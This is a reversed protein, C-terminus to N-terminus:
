KEMCNEHNEILLVQPYYNRMVPAGTQMQGTVGQQQGGQQGQNYQRNMQQGSVGRMGGQRPGRVIQNPFQGAAPQGGCM